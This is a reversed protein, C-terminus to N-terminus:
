GRKGLPRVWRGALQAALLTVLAALAVSALVDSLFHYNEDIRAFAIFVPIVLLPIRWRPFVYALPLFLGWFFANHGSPFSNGGAFWVHSWDNKEFLQFPRMRGFLDKLLWGAEITIWQVVGAFVLGRAALRSRRALLWLVGLAILIGGLLFQGVAVHSGVLGRGTLVDLHDRGYEVLAANEIGSNHVANAILRDFLFISSLSVLACLAVLIALSRKSM